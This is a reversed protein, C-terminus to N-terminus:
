SYKKNIRYANADCSSYITSQIYSLLLVIFYYENESYNELIEWFVFWRISNYINQRGLLNMFIFYM